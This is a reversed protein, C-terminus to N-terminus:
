KTFLFRTLKDPYHIKEDLWDLGSIVKMAGNIVERNNNPNKNFYSGTEKDVLGNIFQILTSSFDKDLNKFICLIFLITSWCEM